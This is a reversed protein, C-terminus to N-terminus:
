VIQKGSRETHLVVARIAQEVARDIREPTWARETDLVRLKKFKGRANIPEHDSNKEIM